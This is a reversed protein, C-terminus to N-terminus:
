VVNDIYITSWLATSYMGCSQRHCRYGLLVSHLLCRGRVHLGVHVWDVRRLASPVRDYLQAYLRHLELAASWWGSFSRQSRCGCVNLPFFCIFQTNLPLFTLYIKKPKRKKKIMAHKNKFGCVTLPHLTVSCCGSFLAIWHLLVQVFIVTLILTFFVCFSLNFHFSFVFVVRLSQLQNTNSNPNRKKQLHM